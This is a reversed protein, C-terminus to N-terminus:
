NPFLGQAWPRGRKGRPGAPPGSPGGPARAGLYSLGGAKACFFTLVGYAFGLQPIVGQDFQVALLGISRFFVFSGPAVGILTEIKVFYLLLILFVLFSLCHVHLLDFCLSAFPLLPFFLLALLAFCLLAFCLSPLAFCLM